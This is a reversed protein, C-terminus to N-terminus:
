GHGGGRLFCICVDSAGAENDSGGRQQHLLPCPRRALAALGHADGGAHVRGGPARARASGATSGSRLMRGCAASRVGGKGELLAQPGQAPAALPKQGRRGFEDM